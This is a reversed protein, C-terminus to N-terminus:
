LEPCLFHFLPENFLSPNLPSYTELILPYDKPAAGKKTKLTGAGASALVNLIPELLSEVPKKTGVSIITGSSTCLWRTPCGLAFILKAIWRADAGAGALFDTDRNVNAQM